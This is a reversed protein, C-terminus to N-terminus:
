DFYRNIRTVVVKDDKEWRMRGRCSGGLGSEIRVVCGIGGVWRMTTQQWPMQSAGDGGLSEGRRVAARSASCLQSIAGKWFPSVGVKMRWM